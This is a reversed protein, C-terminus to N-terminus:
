SATEPADEDDSMFLLIGHVLNYLGFLQGVLNVQTNYLGGPHRAGALRPLKHDYLKVPLALADRERDTIKVAFLARHRDHELRHASRCLLHRRQLCPIGEPIKDARQPIRRIKYLLIHLAQFLLPIQTHGAAYPRSRNIRLHLPHLLM